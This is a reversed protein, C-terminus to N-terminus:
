SVGDSARTRVRRFRTSQPSVSAACMSGRKAHSALLLMLAGKFITGLASTSALHLSLKVVMLHRLFGVLVESSAKAQGKRTVEPLAASGTARQTEKQIRNPDGKSTLLKDLDLRKLILKSRGEELRPCLSCLPGLWQIM